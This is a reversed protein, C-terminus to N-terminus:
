RFVLGEGGVGKGFISSSVPRLGILRCRLLSVFRAAKTKRDEAANGM